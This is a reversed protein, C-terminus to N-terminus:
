YHNLFDRDFFKGPDSKRTPAIDCHCAIRKENLDPYFDILARVLQALQQYQIANFPTDVTGELEIGISFDNCKTRGQYSSEGAHWARKDFPVFQILHGDRRVLVHASVPSDAVKAYEPHAHPDLQNTFLEIIGNGTYEGPPMSICHLVILDISATPPRADANPSEIYEASVIRQFDPHILIM